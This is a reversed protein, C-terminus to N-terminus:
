YTTVKEVICNYLSVAAWFDAWLQDVSKGGAWGKEFFRRASSHEAGVEIEFSEVLKNAEIIAGEADDFLDARLYLSAIFLWIEVLLSIRHQRDQSSPLRPEPLASSTPLPAPLRVDQRPPQDRHGPPPPWTDHPVNHAVEKLPQDPSAQGDLTMSNAVAPRVPSVRNAHSAAGVIKPANPQSRPAREESIPAPKERMSGASKAGKLNGHDRWDGHQGRLKFPFHHNHHSKETAVGDENTVTIAIPVGMNQGNATGRQDGSDVTSKPVPGSWVSGQTYDDKEGSNRISRPRISGALSRITGGFKSPTTSTATQPPMPRTKVLEPNGFLRAYLALLESSVDVAAGAGEMVEILAVQSMKVQIIGEKEFGDMQDVIGGSSRSHPKESDNSVRNDSDEGFLVTSDGFQQFAVECMKAAQEYDDKATLCLALLHWMPVLRRERTYDDSGPFADEDEDEDEEDNSSSAITQKIVGAASDVDRTEALLLALAYATEINDEDCEQARRFTRLAESQLGSRSETEYTKCAWHAKSIAVSRYAAGVTKMQLHSQTRQNPIPGESVPNDKSSTNADESSSPLDQDLWKQITKAVEVATEAQETDGYRCLIRVAEVAALIVSENNEFGLEHKGTKEARAKAKDVLEMFSNFAHMALDFEGLAAHVTFLYRLIATSHFTKTAARYLIELVGRGVGEKGGAGIEADTWEPTCLVRWNSVVQETWEEVETNTQSAKPFHTENLLLSEYTAEVRHLAARQRLKASTYQENSTDDSPVMLLDSPSTSSPNYMLGHQLITSLLDYYAKWVKRRPIDLHSPSTNSGGTPAPARQWFDTWAQFCRLSESLSQITPSSAARQRTFMCGRALLRETWRRLEPTRSGPAKLAASLYQQRAEDEKGTSELSAVKILTSKVDCVEMWGLATVHSGGGRSEIGDHALAQVAAGPDERLWNIEALCVRAAYSDEPFKKEVNIAEALKPM